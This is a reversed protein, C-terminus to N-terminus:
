KLVPAIEVSFPVTLQYGRGRSGLGLPLPDERAAPLRRTLTRKPAGAVCRRGGANTRAPHTRGDGSGVEGGAGGLLTWMLQMAGDDLARDSFRYWAGANESGCRAM